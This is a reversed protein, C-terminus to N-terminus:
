ASVAVASGGSSGGSVRSMDWPNRVAGLIGTESSGGMAFEDMNLKGIVIMGAQELKDVVTANFVPTYGSLIKSACTTEIEASSINDKLAVPVGALLSLNEGANIKEQVAQANALAREKAVATFANLQGDVEEIRKLYESVAEVVGIKKSKIAASLELATM